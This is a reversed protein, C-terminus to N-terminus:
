TPSIMGLGNVYGSRACPLRPTLPGISRRYARPTVDLGSSWYFGFRAALPLERVGLKRVRSGRSRGQPCKRLHQALANV